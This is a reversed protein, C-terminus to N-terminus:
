LLCQVVRLCDRQAVPVGLHVALVQEQGQEILSVANGGPQQGVRAGIRVPQAGGELGFECAARPDAAGADGRPLDLDRLPQGPQEIGGLM